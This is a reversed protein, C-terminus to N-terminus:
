VLKLYLIFGHDCKLLEDVPEFAWEGQTDPCANGSRPM